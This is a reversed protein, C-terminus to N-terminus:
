SVKDFLKSICKDYYATGYENTIFFNNYLAKVTCKKKVEREVVAVTKDKREIEVKITVLCKIKDGPRLNNKFWRIKKALEKAEETNKDIESSDEYELVVKKVKRQEMAANTYAMYAKQYLEKDIESLDKLAKRLTKDGIEFKEAADLLTSNNNIIYNAIEIKKEKSLVRGNEISAKNAKELGRRAAELVAKKSAEIVTEYAQKYLEPYDEKLAEVYKRALTKSKGFHRSAEIYTCKHEIIYKAFEIRVKVKEEKTGKNIRKEGEEKLTRIAKDYIDRDVDKLYQVHRVLCGRTTNFHRAAETSSVKNQIIYVAMEKKREIDVKKPM